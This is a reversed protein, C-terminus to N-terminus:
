QTQETQDPLAIECSATLAPVSLFVQFLSELNSSNTSSIRYAQVNNMDGSFYVSCPGSLAEPLSMGEVSLTVDEGATDISEFEDSSDILDQVPLPITANFLVPTPLPPSPPVLRLQNMPELDAYPHDMDTMPEETPEPELTEAALSDYAQDVASWPLIPECGTSHPLPLLQGFLVQTLADSADVNIMPDDIIGDTEVTEEAAPTQCTSEASSSNSSKVSERRRKKPPIAPLLRYVKYPDHTKTSRRETVEEVDHLSNLACRFNAKWKKYDPNRSDYRGTHQAWCKFVTVDSTSWESRSGHRWTIRILKETKDLWQLGPINRSNAEAELWERMLLRDKCGVVVRRDGAGESLEEEDEGSTSDTIRPRKQRRGVAEKQDKRRAEKKVPSNVIASSTTAQSCHTNPQEASIKATQRSPAAGNRAAIRRAPASYEPSPKRRHDKLEYNARSRRPRPETSDAVAKVATKSPQFTQGDAM